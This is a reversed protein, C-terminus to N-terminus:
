SWLTPNRQRTVTYTKFALRAKYVQVRRALHGLAQRLEDPTITSLPGVIVEKLTMQRSFDAFFLNTDPDRDQLRTFLRVESEYSWHKYKTSLVKLMERQADAGGGEIVEVQANLRMTTYRVKTLMKVPIDFGCCIGTHKGAYHSWQVPNRWNRSFCLMGFREDFEQRWIKFRQRVTKDTSSPLLEFPDNVDAITAIKLRRKRLNDLGHERSVFHYVRPRMRGSSPPNTDRDM